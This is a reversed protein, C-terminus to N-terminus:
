WVKFSNRLLTIATVKSNKRSRNDRLTISKQQHRDPEAKAYQYINSDEFPNSQCPDNHETVTAVNNTNERTPLKGKPSTRGYEFRLIKGKTINSSRKIQNLDREKLHQERLDV